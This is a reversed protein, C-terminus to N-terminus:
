IFITYEQRAFELAVDKNLDLLETLETFHIRNTFSISLNSMTGPEDGWDDTEMTTNSILTGVQDVLAKRTSHVEDVTSAPPLSSCFAFLSM